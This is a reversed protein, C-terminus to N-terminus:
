CRLAFDQHSEGRAELMDQYVAKAEDVNCFRIDSEGTRGFQSRRLQIHQGYEPGSNRIAEAFFAVLDPPLFGDNSIVHKFEVTKAGPCEAIARDVTSSWQWYNTIFSRLADLDISLEAAASGSGSARPSAHAQGSVRLRELSLYVDLPSRVCHLPRIPRSRIYDLVFLSCSDHWPPCIASLQNYMLDFQIPGFQVYLSKFFEDLLGISVRNTSDTSPARSALWTWYTLAQGPDPNFIEGLARFDAGARLCSGIFKSACRQNSITVVASFDPTM